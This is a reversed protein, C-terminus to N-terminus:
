PKKYVHLLPATSSQIALFITASIRWPFEMSSPTSLAERANLLRGEIGNRWEELGGEKHSWQLPM